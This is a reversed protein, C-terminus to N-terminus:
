ADIRETTIDSEFSNLKRTIITENHEIRLMVVDGVSLFLGNASASLAANDVSVTFRGGGEWDTITGIFARQTAKQLEKLFLM